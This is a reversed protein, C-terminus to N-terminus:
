VGPARRAGRTVKGRPVDASHGFQHLGRGGTPRPNRRNPEPLQRLALPTHHSPALQALAPDAVGRGCTRDCAAPQHSNVGPDVREAVRRKRDVAPQHGRDEVGPGIGGEAMRGGAPQPAQEVRFRRDDVEVGAMSSSRAGTQPEVHRPSYVADHMPPQRDARRGLREELEGRHEREIVQPAPHGLGIVAVQEIRWSHDGPAALPPRARRRQPPPEGGLQGLQGLRQARELFAKQEQALRVANRKRLHVGRNGSELDIREPALLPDDDLEVAVFGVSAGGRDLPVALTLQCQARAAVRHDSVGPLLHGLTRGHDDCVQSAHQSGSDGSQLGSREAQSGTEGAGNVLSTCDADV